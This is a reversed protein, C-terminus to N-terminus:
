VWFVYNEIDGATGTGDIITSTLGDDIQDFNLTGWVISYTTEKVYSFTEFEALVANLVADATGNKCVVCANTGVRARKVYRPTFQPVPQSDAAIKTSNAYTADTAEQTIACVMDAGDISFIGNTALTVLAANNQGNPATFKLTKM